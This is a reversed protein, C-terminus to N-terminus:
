LQAFVNLDALMRPILLADRHPCLRYKVGARRSAYSLMEQLSFNEKCISRWVVVSSNITVGTVFVLTLTASPPVIRGLVEAGTESRGQPIFEPCLLNLKM